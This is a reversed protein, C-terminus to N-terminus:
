ISMTLNVKFFDFVNPANAFRALWELLRFTKFGLVLPFFVEKPEVFVREHGEKVHIEDFVFIKLTENQMNVM